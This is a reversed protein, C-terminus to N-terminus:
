PYGGYCWGQLLIRMGVRFSNRAALHLASLLGQPEQTNTAIKTSALLEATSERSSWITTSLPTYGNVKYELNCGFQILINVIATNGIAAVRHIASTKLRRNRPHTAKRLWRKLKKVDQTQAAKNPQKELVALDLVKKTAREGESQDTCFNNAPLVNYFHPTILGESDSFDEIDSNRLVLV